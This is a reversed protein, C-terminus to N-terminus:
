KRSLLEVLRSLEEASGFEIGIRGGGGKRSSLSVKAGLRQGLTQAITGYLAPTRTKGKERQAMARVRREVERVTMRETGMERFLAIQSEAEKLGLLARAAGGELRGEQIALQIEAPLSLLRLYNAVTTRALGVKEAAGQQTLGDQEMMERLALGIEIANLDERQINEVLAMARAEPETTKRVYAPISELGAARAARWRREGAIIRYGNVGDESVTIPQIVGLERVSATLAELGESGVERRPQNPNPHIRDVELELIGGVRRLREEDEILADLGRGLANYKKHAVMSRM